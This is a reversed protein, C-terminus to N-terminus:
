KSSKDNIQDVKKHLEDLSQKLADHKDHLDKIQRVHRTSAGAAIAAGLASVVNTYNGLILQSSTSPALQKDFLGIIGFIVLYFLLFIFILISPTSSLARPIFGLFKKM